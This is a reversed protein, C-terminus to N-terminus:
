ESSPSEEAQTSSPSENEGLTFNGAKIRADLNALAQEEQGLVEELGTKLIIEVRGYGELIERPSLEFGNLVIDKFMAWAENHTKEDYVSRLERMQLYIRDAIEDDIGNLSAQRVMREPKKRREIKDGVDSIM